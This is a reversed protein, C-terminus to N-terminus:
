RAHRCDAVHKTVISYGEVVDWLQIDTRFLMWRTMGHVRVVHYISILQLEHQFVNFLKRAV